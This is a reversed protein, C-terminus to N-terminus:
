AANNLAAFRLNFLNEVMARDHEKLSWFYCQEMAKYLPKDGSGYCINLRLVDNLSRTTLPFGLNRNLYEKRTENAFGLLAPLLAEISSRIGQESPGGKILMDSLIKDVEHNLVHLEEDEPLYDKKYGRCRDLFAGNMRGTGYFSGTTDGTGNTNDTVVLRFNPHVHIKEGGKSSLSFVANPKIDNLGAIEGPEMLSIENIILVKGNRMADILAGEFFEMGVEQPLWSGELDILEKRKSANFVLTPWNLRAFFQQVGSTKGTGSPGFIWAITSNCNMAFNWMYGFFSRDFYHYEEECHDPSGVLSPGVMFERIELHDTASGFTDFNQTVLKEAPLGAKVLNNTQNTNIVKNM